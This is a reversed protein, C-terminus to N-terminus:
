WFQHQFTGINFFNYFGSQEMDTSLTITSHANGSDIVVFTMFEIQYISALVFGGIDQRKWTFKWIFHCLNQISERDTIQHNTNWDYQTFSSFLVFSCQEMEGMHQYMTSQMQHTIVM